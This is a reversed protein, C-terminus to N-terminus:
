AGGFLFIRLAALRGGTVGYPRRPEIPDGRAGRAPTNAQPKSPAGQRSRAAHGTVAAPVKLALALSLLELNAIMAQLDDRQNDTEAEPLADTLERHSEILPWVHEPYASSEDFTM